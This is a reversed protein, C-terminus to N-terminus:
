QKNKFTLITELPVNNEDYSDYGELKIAFSISTEGLSNRNKNHTYYESKTNNFYPLAGIAELVNSKGSENKGIITTINQDLHLVNNVDGISKYNNIIIKSITM